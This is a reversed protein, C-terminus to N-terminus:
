PAPSAPMPELTGFWAVLAVIMIAALAELMLSRRMADVAIRPDDDILSATLAPTLRWRNAAALGLMSAFLLLKALLLQGYPASLARGLNAAGVIMQANVLGTVAVVLVCITGASAFRDLSRATVALQAPPMDGRRPWLLTLFAAIAGLWIAAAVMHLADSVRHITGPLGEGAGAHGAWVLTALAASGAIAVIAAAGTPWKALQTAAGLAAILAIMHYVWAAGVDTEDIMTMLMTRDVALLQVGHMTAALVIIGALSILLGLACLWPLPRILIAAIAADRGEEGRLAYLPFAALGVLLMLDAFLAFRVSIALIDAM